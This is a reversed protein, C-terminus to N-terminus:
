QKDFAHVASSPEGKRDTKFTLKFSKADAAIALTGSFSKKGDEL